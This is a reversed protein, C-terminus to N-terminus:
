RRKAELGFEEIMPCEDIWGVYYATLDSLDNTVKDMPITGSYPDYTSFMIENIMDNSECYDVFEQTIGHNEGQKDAIYYDPAGFVHLIEHAYTAPGQEAGYVWNTLCIAEYPMNYGLETGYYPMAQCVMNTDSNENLYMAYVITETKYKDLLVDSAERLNEDILTKVEAYHAEGKSFDCDIDIAYFLENDTDWNYIFEIDKGYKKGQEKIWDMALGMNGSLKKVAELDEGSEFNWSTTNDNLFVSMVVIKGELADATGRPYEDDSLFDREGAYDDDNGEEDAYEESDDYEEDEESDDAYEEEYEEYEELDEDSCGVTFMAVLLALLIVAIGNYKAKEFIKKKM